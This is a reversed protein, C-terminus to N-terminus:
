VVVFDSLVVKAKNTLAAIKVQAEAGNGDPDYYLSGTARDYIIRDDADAAVKGLHFASSALKGLSGINSFFFANLKFTDDKSKFDRIIDANEATPADNFVFADKGAGGILTDMGEGGILKDNGKGGDLRDNGMGGYVVEGKKGGLFIDNGGLLMIDGYIFGKRNNLYNSGEGMYLGGYIKGQNTFRPADFEM